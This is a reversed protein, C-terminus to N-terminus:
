NKYDKFPNILEMQDVVNNDDPNCKKLELNFPDDNENSPEFGPESYLRLVDRGLGNIVPLTENDNYNIM